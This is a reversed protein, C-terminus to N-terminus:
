IVSNLSFCTGARGVTFKLVTNIGDGRFVLNSNSSNLAISGSINYEGASFYIVTLTSSNKLNNIITNIAQFNDSGSNGTSIGNKTVDIIKTAQRPASALLGAKSWDIRAYSPILQFTTVPCIGIM